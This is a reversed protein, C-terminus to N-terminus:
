GDGMAADLQADDVRAIVRFVLTVVGDVEHFESRILNM